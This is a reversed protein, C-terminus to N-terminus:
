YNFSKINSIRVRLIAINNEGGFPIYNEHVFIRSVNRVERRGSAPTFFIDGAIVRWYVPNIIEFRQNM